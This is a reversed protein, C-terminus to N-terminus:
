NKFLKKIKIIIKQFPTFEIGVNECKLSDVFDPVNSYINTKLTAIKKNESIYLSIFENGEDDVGNRYGYIDKLEFIKKIFLLNHCILKENQVRAVLLEYYNMKILIFIGLLFIIIFYSFWIYHGESIMNHYAGEAFVFPLSFSAFMLVIRFFVILFNKIKLKM